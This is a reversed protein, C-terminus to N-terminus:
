NSVELCMHTAAFAGIAVPAFLLAYLPLHDRYHATTWGFDKLPKRLVAKIYIVPVLLYFVFSGLVWWLLFLLRFHEALLAKAAEQSLFIPLLSNLIFYGTRPSRFLYYMCLLSIAATILIGFTKGDLSYNSQKKASADTHELTQTCHRFISSPSLPM